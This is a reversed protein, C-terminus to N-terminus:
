TDAEAATRREDGIERTINRLAHWGRALFSFRLLNLSRLAQASTPALGRPARLATM